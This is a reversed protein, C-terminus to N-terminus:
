GLALLLNYLYGTALSGALILAIYLALAKRKMFTTLGAIVWASTASGTIIFAMMAGESAGSQLLSQILPISSETTLYLPLGILSALPVAWIQDAGLLASVISMPVFTNVLYGIGIFLCFYLLIQKFGLNILNSLLEKLRLKASLRQFRNAASPRAACCAGTDASRACRVAPAIGVPNPTACHCAQAQVAPATETPSTSGETPAGERVGCACTRNRQEGLFRAQERLYGTHKEIWQTIFGSGLGIVLSALTLVLAFRLSLMGSIMVFGDPSMLPSSTLFAMIPGWPLATTLMGVLVAMTGCACFPTFAGIAVSLFISVKARGTLAHALKESNVYTKLAVATMVSLALVWGNHAVSNIITTVMGVALNWVTELISTM